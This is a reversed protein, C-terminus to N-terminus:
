EHTGGPNNTSRFIFVPHGPSRREVEMVSAEDSSCELGGRRKADISVNKHPKWKFPERLMLAYTGVNWVVALTINM